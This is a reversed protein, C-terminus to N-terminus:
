DAPFLSQNDKATQRLANCACSPSSVAGFLHVLMRYTSMEQKMDGDPWWLFRLLDVEEESVKVKISKDMIKLFRQDERSVEKEEVNNESFDHNYQYQLLEELREVSIWNATVCPTGNHRECDSSKESPGNVVWGLLTRIAYPGNSYSNIVEWPEMLQSANAGILLDVGAEISSMKVRDLYPWKSIEEQTIINDSNVPMKKQTHVEPLPLFHKSNIGSIELGTVFMALCLSHESCFTASSGPDLFAYTQILKDGKISKVQVPIISLLCKENGAGTHGCTQASMLSHKQGKDEVASNRYIHLVSPHTRNCVKCVLLKDCEKSVHGTNLCSFCVRKGKLFDLKERQSRKGFTECKELVHNASCFLCSGKATNKIMSDNIHQSTIYRRPGAAVVNTAFINGKITKNSKVANPQKDLIHGFVPDLAMKAHREIFDVIDSFKARGQKLEMIECAKERWRERLKFPLKMVVTRMNNPMNLEQMYSNDDIINCCACLFLSYAQLGQADENKLSPWSLAKEMYADAIKCESGFQEKLLKKALSYGVDPDLHQCSQVLEKPQGSTFQELFYLCDRKDHIKEEVGHAFARIFPIYHLPKGDFVQIEKKPLTNCQAQYVLHTTLEEQRKLIEYLASDQCPLTNVDRFTAMNGRVPDTSNSLDQQQGTTSARTYLGGNSQMSTFQMAVNCTVGVSQSQVSHTIGATDMPVYETAGANLRKPRTSDFIGNEDGDKSSDHTRLGKIHSGKTHTCKSHSDTTSLVAIKASSAAIEAELEMQEIRKRLEEQQTEIEHKAKLASARAILAAREAEAQVRALIISSRSSKLSSKSSATHSKVVNSVSDEPGIDDNDKGYVEKATVPKSMYINVHEIFENIPIMKAKFWIDHKELESDPLVCLLSEHVEKVDSFLVNFNDFMIRVEPEYEKNDQMLRKITEILKHAKNLKVKRLNQLSELREALAKATLIITRKQREPEKDTCLQENTAAS